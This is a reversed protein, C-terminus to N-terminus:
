RGDPKFEQIRAGDRELVFVSGKADAVVGIPFSLQGVGTGRGGFAGIFRGEPSFKQIRSNETDVVYVNDLADCCVGLGLNIEGEAAGLRGFAGVFMGESTFRQVRGAEVVYVEGRGNVAVGTPLYFQGQGAGKTGWVKKQVGVASYKVVRSNGADVVYIDGNADAAVGIPRVLLADKSGVDGWKRVFRGDKDFKAVFGERGDTVYCAGDKDVAIGTPAKLMKFAKGQDGWGPVIRRDPGFKRVRNPSDDAVYFNGAKDLTVAKPLEFPRNDPGTWSAAAAYAKAVLVATRAVPEPGESVTVAEEWDVYRDKRVGLNHPGFAVYGLECDTVMGTDKGDLFVSGGPPVSAVRVSKGLSQLVFRRVNKADKLPIVHKEPKYGEKEIELTVRPHESIIVNPSLGSDRGDVKLRAEKPETDIQLTYGVFTGNYQREATGVLQSVYTDAIYETGQKAALFDVEFMHRFERIAGADDDMKSLAHGAWLYIDCATRKQKLPDELSFVKPILSRLDEVTEALDSQKRIRDKAEEVKLAIEAALEAQTKVTGVPGVAGEGPGGEAVEEVLYEHIYGVTKVGSKEVTVKWFEGQKGEATLVTNMPLTLIAPGMVAAKYVPGGSAYTVRLKTAAGAAGLALALGVAGVLWGFGRRPTM